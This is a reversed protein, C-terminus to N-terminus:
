LLDIAPAKVMHSILAIIDAQPMWPQVTNPSVTCSILKAEWDVGVYTAPDPGILTNDTAKIGKSPMPFATIENAILVGYAPRDYRFFNTNGTSFVLNGTVTSQPSNDLYIEVSFNDFVVNGTIKGYQTSLLGIGEGYNKAVINATITIETSVDVAIARPWGGSWAREKNELCNNTVTNDLIKIQKSQGLGPGGVWIGSRQSGSVITDSIIVDTAKWVAIGSRSADRVAFGRFRVHSAAVVVLDTDLPAGTGQIIALGKHEAVIEIPKSSTGGKVIRVIEPYIGDRVIIKDGQVAIKLGQAITHVPWGLTGIANDTGTPAVYISKANAVSVCTWSLALAIVLWALKEFATRVLMSAVGGAQSGIRKTIMQRVVWNFTRREGAAVFHEITIDHSLERLSAIITSNGGQARDDKWTPRPDIDYIDEPFRSRGSKSERGDPRSVHQPPNRQPSPAEACVRKLFSISM